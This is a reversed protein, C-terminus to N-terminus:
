RRRGESSNPILFYSNPIEGMWASHCCPLYPPFEFNRMGVEENM